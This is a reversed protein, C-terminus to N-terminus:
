ERAPSIGVLLFQQPARRLARRPPSASPGCRASRTDPLHMACWRMGNLQASPSERRMVVLGDALPAGYHTCVAGIAFLADGRRPLLVPEGHAHGLLMAGDLLESSVVGETGLNPGSLNESNTESM